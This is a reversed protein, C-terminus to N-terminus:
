VKESVMIQTGTVQDSCSKYPARLGTVAIVIVFPHALGAVAITILLSQLSLSCRFCDMDCSTTPFNNIYKSHENTNKVMRVTVTLGCVIALSIM